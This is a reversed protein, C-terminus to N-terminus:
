FNLRILSIIKVEMKLIRDQNVIDAFFGNIHGQSYIQELEKTRKKTISDNTQGHSQYLLGNLLIFAILKKM